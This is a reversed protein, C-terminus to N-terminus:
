AVREEIPFMDKCIVYMFKKKLIKCLEPNNHTNLVPIIAKNEILNNVYIKMIIKNMDSIEKLQNYNYSPTTNTLRM